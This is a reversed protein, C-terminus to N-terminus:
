LQQCTEKRKQAGKFLIRDEKVNQDVSIINAGALLQVITDSSIIPSIGLEM